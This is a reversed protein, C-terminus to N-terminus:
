NRCACSGLYWDAISALQAEEDRDPHYGLGAVTGSIDYSTDTTVRLARYRSLSPVYSRDIRRWGEQLAAGARVVAVPVRVRQPRGVREQLYGFFRGWTMPRDNMVTFCKGIVGDVVCARYAALCLNGTYCFGFQRSGNGVILPVGRSALRCFQECSTRDGPGFVDAPRLVVVPLGDGRLRALVYEETARKWRVYPVFDASRGPKEASIGLEGFGLVLATSVYLFRELRSASATLWKVLNETAEYIHKRCQSDSAVDSALAAAHIVWDLDDPLAPRKADSLDCVVLDLKTGDLLRLDSTPRVMGFVRCGRESFYRCLNSGVSGNAGTVLVRKM